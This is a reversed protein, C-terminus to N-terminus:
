KAKAIRERGKKLRALQDQTLDFSGSLTGSMRDLSLYGLGVNTMFGLRARVEKLIQHAIMQEKENLELHNFFQHLM